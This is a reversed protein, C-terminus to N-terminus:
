PFVGPFWWRTMRGAPYPEEEILDRSLSLACEGADTESVTLKLELFEREVFNPSSAMVVAMSVTAPLTTSRLQVAIENDVNSLVLAGSAPADEMDSPLEASVLVFYYPDTAPDAGRWTSRTGYLLPETSLRVTPDTSLRLTAELAPHAIEILVVEIQDTTAQDQAQRANLSLRRM